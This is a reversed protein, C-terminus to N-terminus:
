PPLEVKRQPLEAGPQDRHFRVMMNLLLANGAIAKLEPRSELQALLSAANQKARRKVDPTNRGGRAYREQCAYWQEVFCQRQLDGFDEIWFSATPRQATYDNKFATPRSTMIFVSERYHRMQQSLWESVRSREAPPVEDFGDFMVLADGDKLLNRAWNPPVNLDEAQPLRPLHYETLLKPLSAPDNPPLKKLEQWCRTLYLLFPVLKPVRHKRHTNAGYTYAVHKLLTTKGYGGWARIAIQRYASDQRVRQLLDWILMTRCTAFDELHKPLREYGPLVADSSLRLPVYVEQLLPTFIGDEHKMGDPNDEQCDLRQCKRYKAEFGSFQWKLAENLSTMWNTLADADQRGREAYIESLREVFNKSYAAWVATVITVPFTLLVQTWEQKLLFGVFLWGSGGLPMWQIFPQVIQRQVFRREPSPRSSLSTPEVPAAETPKNKPKSPEAM